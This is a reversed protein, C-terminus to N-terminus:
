FVFKESENGSFVSAYIEMDFETGKGIQFNKPIGCFAMQILLTM